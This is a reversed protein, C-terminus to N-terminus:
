FRVVLATEFWSAVHDVEPRRRRSAQERLSRLILIPRNHRLLVLTRHFYRSVNIGFSALSNGALLLSVNYRKRPPEGSETANRSIRSEIRTPPTSAAIPNSGQFMRFLM